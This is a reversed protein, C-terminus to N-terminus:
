RDAGDVGDVCDVGDVSPVKACHEKPYIKFRHDPHDTLLRGGMIGSVDICTDKGQTNDIEFSVYEGPFLRKYEGETVNLASFHVFVETNSQPLGQTLVTIFGWGKKTDFFKVTGVLTM